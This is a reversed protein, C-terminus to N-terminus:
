AGCAATTRISTEDTCIARRRLLCVDRCSLPLLFRVDFRLDGLRTFRRVTLVDFFCFFFFFVFNARGRAGRRRARHHVIPAEWSPRPAICDGGNQSRRLLPDPSATQSVNGLSLSM